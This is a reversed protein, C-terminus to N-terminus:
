EEINEIVTRVLAELQKLRAEFASNQSKLQNNEAKVRMNDYELTKVKNNLEDVQSQLMDVDLKTSSVASTTPYVYPATWTIGDPSSTTTNIYGNSWNTTSTTNYDMISNKSTSIVSNWTSSNLENLLTNIQNSIM